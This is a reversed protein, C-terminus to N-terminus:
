PAKPEPEAYVIMLWRVPGQMPEHTHDDPPPLATNSGAVIERGCGLCRYIGGTPPTVGPPYEHELAADRSRKLYKGHKYTAM